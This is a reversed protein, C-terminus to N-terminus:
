HRKAFLPLELRDLRAGHVEVIAEVTTVRERHATHELRLERVAELIEKSAQEQHELSQRVRGWAVAIGLLVFLASGVAGALTLIM